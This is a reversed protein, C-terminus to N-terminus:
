NNKRSKKKKPPLWDKIEDNKIEDLTEARQTPAIERARKIFADQNAWSQSNWLDVIWKKLQKKLTEKSPLHSGGSERRARQKGILMLENLKAIRSLAAHLSDNSLIDRISDPTVKRGDPLSIKGNKKAQWPLREISAEILGVNGILLAAVLMILDERSVDSLKEVITSFYLDDRNRPTDIWYDGSAPNTNEKKPSPSFLDHRNIAEVAIRIDTLRTLLTKAEPSNDPVTKLKDILPRM